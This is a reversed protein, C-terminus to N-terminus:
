NRVCSRNQYLSLPGRRRNKRPNMKVALHEIPGPNFDKLKQFGENLQNEIEKTYDIRVVLYDGCNLTRLTEEYSPEPLKTVSYAVPFMKLSEKYSVVSNPKLGDLFSVLGVVNWQAPFFGILVFLVFNIAFTVKLTVQRGKTWLYNLLPAILIAILPIIPFLFREEKYPHFSHGLVIAILFVLTPWLPLFKNKWDLGRWRSFILVFFGLLLLVPFYYYFPYYGYNQGETLNYNVYNRLSAHFVGRLKLDVLGIILFFISAALTTIVLHLIRKQSFLIVGLIGLGAFAMQPRSICSLAMFFVSYVLSLKEDDKLIVKQCFYLSWFFPIMSFNEFMVRTNIYPLFCHFAVIGAAWLGEPKRDIRKFIQYAGWIMSVSLLGMFLYILRLQWLPSEFGLAYALQGIPYVFLRVLPNRLESEQIIWDIGPIRQAPIILRIVSQYDDFSAYGPNFLATLIRAIAGFILLRKINL